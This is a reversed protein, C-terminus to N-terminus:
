DGERKRFGSASMGTSFSSDVEGFAFAIPSRLNSGDNINILTSCQHKKIFQGISAVWEQAFSSRHHSKYVGILGERTESSFEQHCQGCEGTWSM